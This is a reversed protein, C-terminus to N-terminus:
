RQSALFQDIQKMTITEKHEIYSSYWDLTKAIAEDTNWVPKWGYAANLKSCDLKLLNMEIKQSPPPSEIITLREGFRDKAFGVIDGVTRSRDAAPGINWAGLAQNDGRLLKEGFMLYASCVDLVHQWPRIAQPNRIEIPKRSEVARMLDPIIRYKSWDAGGIVNGARLTSMATGNKFFSSQYVSSVLEAGVKSGSYPDNGWLTDTERYGWVWERNEYVKDTTINVLASLNLTRCAELVNLTGMINTEFTTVPDSYGDLVIPQAALHFVIEPNVEGIYKTLLDRDRIDGLKQRPQIKLVDLHAPEFPSPLSYGSVQAGARILLATLWSGKFGTNGTVLVRRNKYFEIWSPSM